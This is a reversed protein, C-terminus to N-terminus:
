GKERYLDQGMEVKYGSTQPVWNIFYELCSWLFIVFSCESINKRVEDNDVVIGKELKVINVRPTKSKACQLRFFLSFM